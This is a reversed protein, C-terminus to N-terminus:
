RTISVLVGGARLVAALREMEARTGTAVAGPLRARLEGVEAVTLGLVQRLFKLALTGQGGPEDLHLGWKGEQHLLAQRVEVPPTGRGDEEVQAGCSPCCYSAYWV